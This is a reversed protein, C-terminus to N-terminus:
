KNLHDHQIMLCIMLCNPHIIWWSISNFVVVSAALTHAVVNATMMVYSFDYFSLFSFSFHSCDEMVTAIHPKGTKMAHVVSVIDTEVMVNDIELELLRTLCWRLASAEAVLADQRLPELNTAAYMFEGNRLRVVM